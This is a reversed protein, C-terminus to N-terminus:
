PLTSGSDSFIQYGYLYPDGEFFLRVLSWSKLMSFSNIASFDM